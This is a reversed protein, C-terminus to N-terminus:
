PQAPRSRGPVVAVVVVVVEDDPLAVGESEVGESASWSLCAPPLTAPATEDVSKPPASASGRMWGM